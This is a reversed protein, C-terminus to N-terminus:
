INTPNDVQLERVICYLTYKLIQSFFQFFHPKKLLFGITGEKQSYSGGYRLVSGNGLWQLDRFLRGHESGKQLLPARPREPAPRSVAGRRQIPTAPPLHLQRSVWASISYRAVESPCHLLPPPDSFTVSGGGSHKGLCMAHDNRSKLRTARTSWSNQGHYLVVTFCQAPM